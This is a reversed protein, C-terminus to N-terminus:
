RTITISHVLCTLLEGYGASCGGYFRFLAEPCRGVKNAYSQRHEAQNVTQGKRHQDRKRGCDKSAKRSVINRVASKRYRDPKHTEEGETGPVLHVAPAPHKGCEYGPQQQDRCRSNESLGDECTVALSRDGDSATKQQDASVEDVVTETSGASGPDAALAAGGATLVDDRDRRGV